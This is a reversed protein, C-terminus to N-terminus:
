GPLQTTAGGGGGGSERESPRFVCHRALNWSSVTPEAESASHQTRPCQLKQPLGYWALCFAKMSLASSDHRTAATTHQPLQISRCFPPFARPALTINSKTPQNPGPGTRRPLSPPPLLRRISFSPPSITPHTPRQTQYQQQTTKQM